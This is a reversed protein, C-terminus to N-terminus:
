PISFINGSSSTKVLSELTPLGESSGLFGLDLIDELKTQAVLAGAKQQVAEAPPGTRFYFRNLKTVVERVVVSWPYNYTPEFVETMTWMPIKAAYFYSTVTEPRGHYTAKARFNTFTVWPSFGSIRHHRFYFRDVDLLLANADSVTGAVANIGRAKLEAVLADCLFALDEGVGTIEVPLKGKSLKREVAPRTDKVVVPIPEERREVYQFPSPTPKALPVTLTCGALFTTGLVWLLLVPFWSGGRVIGGIKKRGIADTSESDTAGKM